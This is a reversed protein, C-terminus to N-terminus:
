HKIGVQLHRVGGNLKFGNRAHLVRRNNFAILDGPRFRHKIQILSIIIVTSMTWGDMESRQRNMWGDMWGDM